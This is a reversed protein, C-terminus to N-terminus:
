RCFSQYFLDGTTDPVVNHWQLLLDDVDISDIVKGQLDYYVISKFALKKEKCNLAIYYNRYWVKKNNIPKVDGPNLSKTWFSVVYRDWTISSVDIYNKPYIEKWDAAFVPVISVIIFIVLSFKKM